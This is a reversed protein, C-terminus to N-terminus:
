VLSLLPVGEKLMATILPKAHQARVWSTCHENRCLLADSLLIFPDFHGAYNFTRPHALKLLFTYEQGMGRQTFDRVGVHRLDAFIDLDGPNDFGRAVSGFVFLTDAVASDQCALMLAPLITKFQGKLITSM